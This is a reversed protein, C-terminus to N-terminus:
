HAHRFVARRRGGGNEVRLARGACVGALHRADEIAAPASATLVAETLDLSIPRSTSGFGAKAQELFFFCFCFRHAVHRTDTTLSCLVGVFFLTQSEVQNKTGVGKRLNVVTAVIYGLQERCYNRCAEIGGWERLICM